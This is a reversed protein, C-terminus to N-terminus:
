NKKLENVAQQVIEFEPSAELAKELHLLAQDNNKREFEVLGKLRYAAAKMSVNQQTNDSKSFVLQMENSRADNIIIDATTLADNYSKMRYQLFAIKYLTNIDNNKLYLPEYFELAKDALGLNEFSTAALELALQNNPDKGASEQAVIGASIWNKQEYYLLSLSDLLGLNNPKLYIMNYLANKAADIDNFGVAKEYIFQQKKFEEDQAKLVISLTLLTIILATRKM